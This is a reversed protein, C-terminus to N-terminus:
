KQQVSSKLDKDCRLELLKGEKGRGQVIDEWTGEPWLKDCNGFVMFASKGQGHDAWAFLMVDQSFALQQQYRKRNDAAPFGLRDLVSQRKGQTPTHQDDESSSNEEGSDGALLLPPQGPDKYETGDAMM